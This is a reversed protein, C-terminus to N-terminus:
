SDAQPRDPAEQDVQEEALNGLERDDGLLVVREGSLVRGLFYDKDAIRRRAEGPGMIRPNIERRTTNQVTGIVAMVDRVRVDCIIMVDIDSSADHEGEAISGYIFAVEIRDSLPALARRLADAAGMTKTVMSLLEPFIPCSPNAQFFVSRAIKRRTAVGAEVLLRVERQVSGVPLDTLRVIERLYFQEDPHGFLLGLIARRAKGFLVAAPGDVAEITRM